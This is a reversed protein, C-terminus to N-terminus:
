SPTTGKAALPSTTVTRLATMVLGAVTGALGPHAAIWAQVPDALATVLIGAVAVWITKSKLAGIIVELM